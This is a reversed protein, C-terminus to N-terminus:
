DVFIAIVIQFGHSSIKPLVAEVAFSRRLRLAVLVVAFFQKFRPATQRAMRNAFLVLLDAAREGRVKGTDALFGVVIVDDAPNVVRTFAPRRVARFLMSIQRGFIIRFVAQWIEEVRFQM